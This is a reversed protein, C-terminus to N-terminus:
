DDANDDVQAQSCSEMELGQFATMDASSVVLATHGGTQDRGGLGLGQM